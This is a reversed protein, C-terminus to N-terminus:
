MGGDRRGETRGSLVARAHLHVHKKAVRQPINRKDVSQHLGFRACMMVCHANDFHDFVDGRDAYCIEELMAVNALVYM